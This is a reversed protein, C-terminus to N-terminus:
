PSCGSATCARDVCAGSACEADYTCFVGPATTGRPRRCAGQVCLLGVACEDAQCAGGEAVQPACRNSADCRLGRRADCAQRNASCDAGPGLLEADLCRRTLYDCAADPGCPTECILPQCYFTAEIGRVCARGAPCTLYSWTGGVFTGGCRNDGGGPPLFPADVCLRSSNCQLTGCASGRCPDGVAPPACVGPCEVGGDRPTIRCRLGASCEHTATCSAGAAGRGHVFDLCAPAAVDGVVYDVDCTRAIADLCRGFSSTDLSLDGRELGALQAALRPPDPEVAFLRPGAICLNVTAEVSTSCRQARQCAALRIRQLMERYTAVVGGADIAVFVDSTPADAVAVDVPAVGVDAAAVDVSAGGEDTAADRAVVSTATGTCGVSLVALAWARLSADGRRRSRSASSM